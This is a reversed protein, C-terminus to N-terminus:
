DDDQRRTIRRVMTWIALGGSALVALTAFGIALMTFDRRSLGLITHEQEEEEFEAEAKVPAPRPAPKQAAAAPRSAPSTSKKGTDKVAPTPQRAPKPAAAAAQRAPTAAAAQRAPKPTAVPAAAPVKPAPVVVEDAPIFKAEQGPPEVPEVNVEDPVVETELWQLYAIMSADLEAEGAEEGASLFVQLAQAAREPTPYRKAPDKALMWDLIQQLGDPVASNFKRVPPPAETAHRVLLRVRNADTFPPCGALAHYLVCGVSYIDARIDASRPDRAQEPAMYEPTGLLDGENTLETNGEEEDFLARGTGIDLLKVTCELTSERRGGILMLNGPKVDRHILGLAHMEQLALLTQHALRVAEDPPMPRRRALVEDLMEGELFEMVLYHLGNAQGTQFTRVINPHKLRLALRSERQFRGLIQPDRAKSPPLIKIAVTQGTRHVARYVGAMRGKGVRDRITYPGLFLQDVNGREIVRVQYETVAQNAILWRTFKELDTPQGGAARQWRRHLDRVEDEGLMQSHVLAKCFSEVTAVM